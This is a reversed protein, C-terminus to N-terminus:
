PYEKIDELDAEDVTIGYHEADHGVIGIQTVQYPRIGLQKAARERELKHLWSLDGVVWRGPILHCVTGKPIELDYKIHGVGWSMNIQHKTRATKSWPTRVSRM